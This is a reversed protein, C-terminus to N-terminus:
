RYSIYRIYVLCLYHRRESVHLWDRGDISVGNSIPTPLGLRFNKDSNLRTGHDGMYQLTEFRGQDM